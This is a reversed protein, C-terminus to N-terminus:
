SATTYRPEQSGIYGAVSRIIQEITTRPRYGILRELKELSPVRRYMDEFGPGYAEDYSVFQIESQSGTVKKVLRALDLISIEEDNGINVVEGTVSTTRVLHVLSEVVDSVYGFCRTQKGSGFVTLPEQMLAQRIFTPVVM